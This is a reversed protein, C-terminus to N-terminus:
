VPINYFHLIRIVQLFEHQNMQKHHKWSKCCLQTSEAWVRLTDGVILCDYNTSCLADVLRDIM